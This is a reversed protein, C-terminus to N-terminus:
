GAGGKGVRLEGAVALRLSKANKMDIPGDEGGSVESLATGGAEERSDPHPPHGEPSFASEELWATSALQAAEWGSSAPCLCHADAQHLERAHM